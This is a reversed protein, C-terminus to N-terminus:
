EECGWKEDIYDDYVTREKMGDYAKECQRNYYRLEPTGGHVTKEYHNPENLGVVWEGLNELYRIRGERKIKGDLADRVWVIDGDFLKNGYRDNFGSYQGVTFKDVMWYEFRRGEKQKCIFAEKLQLYSGYVWVNDDPYYGRFLIKRTM